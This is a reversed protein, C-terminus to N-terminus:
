AVEIIESCYVFTVTLQTEYLVYHDNHFDSSLEM